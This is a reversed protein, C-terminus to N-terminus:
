PPKCAWISDGVSTWKSNHIATDHLCKAGVNKVLVPVEDSAHAPWQRTLIACARLLFGAWRFAVRGCAADVSIRFGELNQRAAWTHMVCCPMSADTRTLAPACGQVCNDCHDPMMEHNFAM